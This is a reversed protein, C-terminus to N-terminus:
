SLIWEETFTERYMEPDDQEVMLAYLWYRAWPGWGGLRGDLGYERVLRWYVGARRIHVTDRREHEVCTLCIHCKKLAAFDEIEQGSLQCYSLEWERERM